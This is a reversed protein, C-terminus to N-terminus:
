NKIPSVGRGGHSDHEKQSFEALAQSNSLGGVVLMKPEIGKAASRKRWHVSGEEGNMVRLFEM